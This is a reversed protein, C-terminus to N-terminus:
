APITLRQQHQRAVRVIGATLGDFDADWARLNFNLEIQRGIIRDQASEVDARFLILFRDSESLNERSGPSLSNNLYGHKCISLTPASQVSKIGHGTANEPDIDSHRTPRLHIEQRIGGAYLCYRKM